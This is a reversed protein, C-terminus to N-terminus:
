KNEQYYRVWDIKMSTGDIADTVTGHWKIIALSLFIPVESFSFENTVRRIEKGDMYFVLEKEDWLLGFTHYERSFDINEFTFAEPNRMSTKKGSETLVLDTHNHINTNVMNPYHGENIDLEFRKGETPSAGKTMLWFSNNTAEAAAYKYRCEFYGYKFKRRTWISASTWEQGARNEKKNKLYLIGDKVEANERWRSCLIHGSPGNQAEWNVDLQADPYNFDDEWVLKFKKKVIHPVQASVSFNTLVLLTSLVLILTANKSKNNKMYMM